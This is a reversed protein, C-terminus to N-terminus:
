DRYKVRGGNSKYKIHSARVLSISVTERYRDAM